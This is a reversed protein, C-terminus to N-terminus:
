DIKNGEYDSLEKWYIMEDELWQAFNDWRATIAKEEIDYYIVEGDLQDTHNLDYGVYDGEGTRALFLLYNPMDPTRKTVN